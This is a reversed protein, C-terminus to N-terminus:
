PQLLAALGMVLGIVLLLAVGAALTGARARLPRDIEVLADPARRVGVGLVLAAELLVALALVSLAVRRARRVRLEFRREAALAGDHVRQPAAPSPWAAFLDPHGPARLPDRAQALRRGTREALTADTTAEIWTPDCSRESPLAMSAVGGGEGEPLAAATWGCPGEDDGWLVHATVGAFAGRLQVRDPAALGPLPAEVAVGVSSVSLRVADRREIGEFARRVVTVPAGMGDVRVRVLAMARTKVLSGVRVTDLSPEIRWEAVEDRSSLAVTGEIGPLLTGELATVALDRSPPRSPQATPTAAPLEFRAAHGGGRLWVRRAPTADVRATYLWPTAPDRRLTRTGLDEGRAGYLTLTAQEPAHFSEAVRDDLTARLLLATRGSGGRAHIAEVRWGQHAGRSPVPPAVALVAALAAVIAPPLVWRDIWVRVLTVVSWPGHAGAVM